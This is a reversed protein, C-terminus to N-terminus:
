PMTGFITVMASPNRRISVSTGSQTQIVYQSSSGAAIYCCPISPSYECEGNISPGTASPITSCVSLMNAQIGTAFASAASLLLVVLVHNIRLHKM